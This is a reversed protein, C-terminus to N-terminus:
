WHKLGRSRIRQIGYNMAHGGTDLTVFRTIHVHTGDVAM